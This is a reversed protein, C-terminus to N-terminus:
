SYEKEFNPWAADHPDKTGKFLILVVGWATPLLWGSPGGSIEHGSNKLLSKAHKRSAHPIYFVHINLHTIIYCMYIIIIHFLILCTEARWELFQLDKMQPGPNATRVQGSRNTTGQKHIKGLNKRCCEVGLLLMAFVVVHVRLAANQGVRQIAESTVASVWCPKEIQSDNIGGALSTKPTPQLNLVTPHKAADEAKEWECKGDPPLWFIDGTPHQRIDGPPLIAELPFWQAIQVGAWGSLHPNECSQSGHNNLGGSSPRNLCQHSLM